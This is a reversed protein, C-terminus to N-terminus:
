GTLLDKGSFRVHILIQTRKLARFKFALSLKLMDSNLALLVDDAAVILMIQSLTQHRQPFAACVSRM